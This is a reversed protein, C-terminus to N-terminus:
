SQNERFWQALDRLRKAAETAFTKESGDICQAAIADNQRALECLFEEEQCDSVVQEAIDDFHIDHDGIDITVCSM